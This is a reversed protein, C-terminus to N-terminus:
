EHFLAAITRDSILMKEAEIRLWEGEKSLAGSGIEAAADRELRDREEAGFRAEFEHLSFGEATRLRTMLFENIRDTTTLLEVEPAEGALYKEVSSINWQRNEGNFSHAAPGVGLYPVGQWYSSNHRARRGPLAFNSIEYHEFGAKTLRNHLYRFEAECVEEPTEVLEGRDRLLAFRTRPEISLLYASIHQVDLALAREVSREMSEGGYGPVGFILDITINDFGADQARKVAAEAEEATHRRNMLKLCADDFSQIGISLRDIGIQRLARLYDATLDDPNGQHQCLNFASPSSPM